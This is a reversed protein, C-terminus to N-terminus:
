RSFDVYQMVFKWQVYPLAKVPQCPEEYVRNDHNQFGDKYDIM